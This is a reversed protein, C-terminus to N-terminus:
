QDLQFIKLYESPLWELSRRLWTRTAPAELVRGLIWGADFANRDRVDLGILYDVTKPCEIKGSWSKIQISVRGGPPISLGGLDLSGERDNHAFLDIDKMLGGRYAPVFCGHEELLKAILTELEMSSLCELLQAATQKEKDWHQGVGAQNLVVDIAKFNGWHNVERFTGRTFYQNVGMSALVMPVEAATKEALIEVPLMKPTLPGTSHSFEPGFHVRGDPRLIWVKGSHIVVMVTQRFDGLGCQWFERPQSKGLGKEYDAEALPDFYIVAAPRKLPNQGALYDEARSNGAGIKLYYYKM